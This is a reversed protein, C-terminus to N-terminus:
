FADPKVTKPIVASSVVNEMTNSHCHSKSPLTIDHQEFAKSYQREELECFREWVIPYHMGVVAWRRPHRLRQVKKEFIPNLM